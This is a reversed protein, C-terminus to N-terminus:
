RQSQKYFMIILNMRWSTVLLGLLFIAIPQPYLMVSGISLWSSSGNITEGVSPILTLFILVFAMILLANIHKRVFDTSWFRVLIIASVLSVVLWGIYQHLNSLSNNSLLEAKPLSVSSILFLGFIVQLSVVLILFWDLKEQKDVGM